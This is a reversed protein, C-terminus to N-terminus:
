CKIKEYKLSFGVNSKDMDTTENGNTKVRLLFPTSSSTVLSPFGLGCYQDGTGTGYDGNPISIYDRCDVHTAMELGISSTETLADGTMLLSYPSSDADPSWAVSCAGDRSALCASYDLGSLHSNVDESTIQDATPKKYNFSSIVGSPATYYQLCGDPAKDESNCQIQTVIINWKREFDSTGTKIKIAPGEGEPDINVYIHQGTNNGCLTPLGADNLSGEITLSDTECVGEASPQALDLTQFDLKLQCVSKSILDVTIQCETEEKSTGPYGPNVFSTINTITKQDCSRTFYCCSAFAHACSGDATGNLSQCDNNAYCYGTPHAPNTTACVEQSISVLALWVFRPDRSPVIDQSDLKTNRLHFNTVAPGAWVPALLAGTLLLM